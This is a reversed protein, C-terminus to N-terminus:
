GNKKPDATQKDVTESKTSESNPKVKEKVVSNNVPAPISEKKMLYDIDAKLRKALLEACMSMARSFEAPDERDFASTLVCSNSLVDQESGARNAAIKYSVGLMTKRSKLDIAFMFVTGSIEFESTGQEETTVKDNSFAAQLYRSVMLDPTQVWKNYDDVIVRSEGDRYVMKYKGTEINKFINVKVRAGDPLIREARNLDYYGVERYPVSFICGSLLTASFVALLGVSIINKM